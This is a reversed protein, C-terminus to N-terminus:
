EQPNKQQRAKRKKWLLCNVKGDRGCLRDRTERCTGGSLTCYRVWLGTWLEQRYRMHACTEGTREIERKIEQKM